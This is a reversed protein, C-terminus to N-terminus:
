VTLNISSVSITGLMKIFTEVNCLYSQCVVFLNLKNEKKGQELVIQRQLLVVCRRPLIHKQAWHEVIWDDGNYLPSSFHLLLYDKPVPSLTM